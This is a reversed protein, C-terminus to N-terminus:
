FTRAWFVALDISSHGRHSKEGNKWNPAQTLPCGKRTMGMGGKRACACGRDWFDLCFLAELGVGPKAMIRHHHGGKPM